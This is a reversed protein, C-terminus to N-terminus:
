KWLSFDHIEVIRRNGQLISSCLIRSSCGDFPLQVSKHDIDPCIKRTIQLQNTAPEVPTLAHVNRRSQSPAHYKVDVRHRRVAWQNNNLSTERLSSSCRRTVPVMQYRSVKRQSALRYFFKKYNKNLSTKKYNKRLFNKIIRAVNSAIRTIIRIIM